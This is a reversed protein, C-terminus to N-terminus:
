TEKSRAAMMSELTQAAGHGVLTSIQESVQRRVNEEGFLLGAVGIAIILLPALSFVSYYALAAALRMAKDEGFETLSGKLVDRAFKLKMLGGEALGSIYYFTRM